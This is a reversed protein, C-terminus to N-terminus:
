IMRYAMSFGLSTSELNVKGGTNLNLYPSLLLRPTVLWAVGPQLDTGTNNLAWAKTGLVHTANMEYTLILSAADSVQYNLNPAMYLELDNGFAQNGFFNVRASGYLGLSLRTGPVDYALAHFTQVGLRLKEDMSLRTVPIHFRIDSYLNMDATSFVSSHSIRVFPDQLVFSQTGIPNWIWSATPTVAIEDTVNYGAGIFNRLAVPHVLDKQGYPTPTYASPNQLGPGYFIAFYEVDFTGAKEKEGVANDDTTVQPPVENAAVPEIILGDEAYAPATVGTFILAAVLAIM